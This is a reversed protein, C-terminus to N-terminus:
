QNLVLLKCTILIDYKKQLWLSKIMEASSIKRGEEKIRTLDMVQSAVEKGFIINIMEFTLETDEITDHLVATVLLDTRFYKSRDEAAHEGLMYAVELPHSYYPEGSQRKQDGHYKKAYYVAKKVEQIDVPNKVKTNLLFLKDILRNAYCCSEFKLEWSRIDEM